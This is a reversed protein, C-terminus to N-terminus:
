PSRRSNRRNKNQQLSTAWRCNGKYYGRDNDIRDISHKSSPHRGMDELFKEYSDQWEPCVTIGRGGYDKFNPYDPNNCRGKMSIWTKYEVTTTSNSNTSDGHITKRRAAEEQSCSRCGKANKLNFYFLEKQLGCVCRCLVKRRNTGGSKKYFIDGIVTWKGFKEGIM